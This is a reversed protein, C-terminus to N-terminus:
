SRFKPCVVVRNKRIIIEKNKPYKITYSIVLKKSESPALNIKWILKGSTVDHEAGSIESVSIEIDSEQTIPVQDQVEIQVPVGNTNRIDIEYTFTESRNMGILKKSNYDQKKVRSIMMKRDRGLSLELTDASYRTDLTTQGIYTGNFYINATGEILNLSEWGVIKALLFADKDVKPISFYDYVANLKYDNIDVLYLKGDSPISYTEKIVFDVSLESVEIESYSVEVERQIKEAKGNDKKPQWENLRGESGGTVKPIVQGRKNRSYSLGWPQLVPREIGAMPDATSLALRVNKWDEGSRNLVEARYNLEIEGGAGQTRIDYKPAWAAGKLLYKLSILSKTNIKSDVTILIEYVQKEEPYYLSKLYSEIRDTKEELKKEQRTLALLKNHIENLRTRYFNVASILESTKIGDEEGIRSRNDTLLKLEDNYSLKEVKIKEIQWSLEELSDELVKIKQNPRPSTLFNFQSSISIIRVNGDASVSISSPNINLSIGSFKLVTRGPELNVSAERYVEAGSLFVTVNKIKSNVETEKEAWLSLPLFIILNFIIHKM